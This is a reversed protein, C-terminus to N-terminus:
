PRRLTVSDRISLTLLRIRRNRRLRLEPGADTHTKEGRKTSTRPQHILERSTLPKVGIGGTYMFRTAEGDCRSGGCCCIDRRRVKLERHLLRWLVWGGRPEPPFRGLNEPRFEMHPNSSAKDEWRPVNRELRYISKNKHRTSHANIREDAHDTM